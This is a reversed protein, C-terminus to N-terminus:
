PRMSVSPAPRLQTPPAPEAQAVFGRYAAHLHSRMAEHAGDGDGRLIAHYIEHHQALSSRWDWDHHIMRFLHVHCHSQNWAGMLAQNGTAALIMRHFRSDHGIMAQRVSGTGPTFSELEARLDEAPNALRNNAAVSAAWPELLLRLEFLDRVGWADLQETTAYGKNSTAVLLNDGQLLRLAERIPTASVGLERALATINIKSAPPIEHELIKRRIAEYVTPAVSHELPKNEATM